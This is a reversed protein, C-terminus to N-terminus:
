GTYNRGRYFVSVIEVADPELRYVILASREFPVARLGPGLDERAPYGQPADGIAHCRREIRDVFGNTVAESVGAGLLVQGIRWLDDVAEVRLRVPLRRM